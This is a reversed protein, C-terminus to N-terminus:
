KPLLNNKQMAEKAFKETWEKHKRIFVYISAGVVVVFSWAVVFWFTGLKPFRVFSEAAFAAYLGVVSFYMRTFHTKYDKPTRQKKLM